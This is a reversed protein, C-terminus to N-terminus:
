RSRLREIAREIQEAREQLGAKKLAKMRQEALDFRVPLEPLAMEEATPEKFEIGIAEVVHILLKRSGPKTRTVIKLPTVGTEPASTVETEIETKVNPDDIRLVYGKLGAIEECRNFQPSAQLKEASRMGYKAFEQNHEGYYQRSGDRVFFMGERTAGSTSPEAVKDLAYRTEKWDGDATVMRVSYEYAIPKDNTTSRSSLYQVVFGQPKATQVERASMVQWSAAVFLGLGGLFVLGAIIKLKM